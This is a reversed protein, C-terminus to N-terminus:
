SISGELFRNEQWIKGQELFEKIKDVHNYIDEKKSRRHTDIVHSAIYCEVLFDLTNKIKEPDHYSILDELIQEASMPTSEIKRMWRHKTFLIKLEVV